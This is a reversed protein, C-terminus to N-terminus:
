GPITLVQDAYIRNRDSVGNAALMADVDVGLKRAIGIASEGRKVTYTMAQAPQEDPAVALAPEEAPVSAPEAPEPQPAEAVLTPEATGPIVLSQGAYIRNANTLGNAELIAAVTIGHDRGIHILNDGPKLVYITPGVEVLLEVTAPKPQAVPEAVPQAVPEALAPQPEVVPEAVPVMPEAAVVETVPAPEAEAVVSVPMPAELLGKHAEGVPNGEGIELVDERAMSRVPWLSNIQQEVQLQVDQIAHREGSAVFYVVRSGDEAATVLFVGEYPSRGAQTPPLKSVQAPPPAIQFAALFVALLALVLPV